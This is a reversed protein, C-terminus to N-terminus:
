LGDRTGRLIEILKNNMERSRKKGDRFRAIWEYVGAPGYGTPVYGMTVMWALLAPWVQMSRQIESDRLAGLLEVARHPEAKVAACILYYTRAPLESQTLISEIDHIRLKEDTIGVEIAKAVAQDLAPDEPTTM